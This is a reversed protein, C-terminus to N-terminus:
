VIGGVLSGGKLRRPMGVKTGSRVIPRGYKDKGSTNLDLKTRQRDLNIKEIDYETLGGDGTDETDDVNGTDDIDDKHSYLWKEFDFDDYMPQTKSRTTIPVPNSASSFQNKYNLTNVNGIPDLPQSMSSNRNVPTRTTRPVSYYASYSGNFFDDPMTYKNNEVNRRRLNNVDISRDIDGFKSFKSTADGLSLTGNNKVQSSLLNDTYYRDKLKIQRQKRISENNVDSKVPIDPNYLTNSKPNVNPVVNSKTGNILNSALNM